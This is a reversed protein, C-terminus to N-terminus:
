AENTSDNHGDNDPTSRSGSHRKQGTQLLRRKKDRVAAWVGVGDLCPTVAKCRRKLTMGSNVLRSEIFHFSITHICPATWGNLNNVVVSPCFMTEEQIKANVEIEYSDLSREM